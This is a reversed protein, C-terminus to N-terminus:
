KPNTFALEAIFQTNSFKSLGSRTMIAPHLAPLTPELRIEVYKM